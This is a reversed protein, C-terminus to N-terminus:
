RRNANLYSVAEIYARGAETLVGAPADYLNGTPYAGDDYLSYWFWWQVLRNDDAPYGDQGAATEFFEFAGRLYDAVFAPPFGYDHPMIVGFETVALPVDRYGRAAMWARFDRVHSEMLALDGHDEIEYQLGATEDRGPPIGLGWSDLEERLVFAHRTSLDVAMPEGYTERYVRLVDDLYALRLPTALAIGGAGVRAEPDREKIFTYVEHYLEAYRAATVNDQWRVDPENSVLWFSGPHAEIVAEIDSWPAVVGAEGLRVMQWFTVGPADPPDLMLRWNIFHSVPLGAALGAQLYDVAGTLGVRQSAAAPPTTPTAAPTAAPVTPKIGTPAAAAGEADRTPVLPEPTITPMAVTAPATVSPRAPVPPEGTQDPIAGTADTAAPLRVLLVSGAVLLLVLSLILGLLLAVRGARM